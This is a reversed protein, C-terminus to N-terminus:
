AKRRKSVDYGVLVAGAVILGIGVIPPIFGKEKAEMKLPGMEVTSKNKTYNFGGTAVGIAGVVILIIGIWGIPRMHDGNNPIAGAAQLIRTGPRRLWNGIPYERTINWDEVAGEVAVPAGM